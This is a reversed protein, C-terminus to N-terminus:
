KKKFIIKSNLWTKQQKQLHKIKAPAKKNRRHKEPIEELKKIEKEPINFYENMEVEQARHV